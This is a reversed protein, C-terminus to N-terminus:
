AAVDLLIQPLEGGRTCQRRAVPKSMGVAGGRQESSQFQRLPLYYSLTILSM